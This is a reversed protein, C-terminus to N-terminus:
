RRTGAEIEKVARAVRAWWLAREQMGLRRVNALAREAAAGAEAGHAAVLARAILVIESEPM